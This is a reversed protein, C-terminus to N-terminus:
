IINFIFLNCLTVYLVVSTYLSLSQLDTAYLDSNILYGRHREATRQSVRHLNKM